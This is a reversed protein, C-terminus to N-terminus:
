KQPTKALSRYYEAVEERFADPVEDSSLEILRDDSSVDGLRGDALAPQPIEMTPELSQDYLSDIDSTDVAKPAPEALDLDLPETVVRDIREEAQEVHIGVPITNEFAATDGSRALLEKVQAVLQRISQFPKTLHITAGAAASKSEDFPEFSGVLLVVPTDKTAEGERIRRCLEYGDLGPMHVDTLVLDPTETEILKWASEGDGAAVVDIGEDEFTLKVVKQITVSDDALLLKPRPM